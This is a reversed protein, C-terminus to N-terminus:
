AINNSNKKCAEYTGLQSYYENCGENFPESNGDCAEGNEQAWNYGAYHGTDEDYSNEPEVCIKAETTSPSNSDSCGGCFLVTLCFCLILFIRRVDNLKNM